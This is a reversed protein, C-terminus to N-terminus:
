PDTARYLMAVIYSDGNAPATQFTVTVKTTSKVIQVDEVAGTTFNTVQVIAPMVGLSHNATFATTTGDGTITVIPMLSKVWGYSCLAYETNTSPTAPTNAGAGFSSTAKVYAGGHASIIVNNSGHDGDNQIYGTSVVLEPTSNYGTGIMCGMNGNTFIIKSPDNADTHPLVLAIREHYNSGRVSGTITKTATINQVTDTTVMNSPTGGGGGAAWGVSTGDFTLVDGQSAGSTSPVESVSIDATVASSANAGFTAVDTGNKQITLVGDNVTPISPKNKIYDVQTNDSQDWDSQVQAAPIAPKNQIYAKSNTDSENWNSQVQADPITPKNLIVADGSVADWDAQVNPASNSIVNEGSIAIGTGATYEAGGGTASIVDDVITINTGATLVDQKAALGEDVYEKTVDGSGGEKAEAVTAYSGPRITNVNVM